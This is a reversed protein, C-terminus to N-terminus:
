WQLYLHSKYSNPSGRESLGARFVILNWTQSHSYVTFQNEQM